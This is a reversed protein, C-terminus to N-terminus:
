LRRMKMVVSDHQLVLSKETLKRVMMTDSFQHVHGEEFRIGELVLRRKKLSWRAYQVTSNNITAAIGGQGLGFGEARSMDKAPVVWDGVIQVKQRKCSSCLALTVAVFLFLYKLKRTRMIM